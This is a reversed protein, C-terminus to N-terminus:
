NLNFREAYWDIQEQRRSISDPVEIKGQLDNIDSQIKNILDDIFQKIEDYENEM